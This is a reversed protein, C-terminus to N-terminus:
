ALLYRLIVLILNSVSVLGKRDLNDFFGLHFYKFTAWFSLYYIYNDQKRKKYQKNKNIRVCISTINILVLKYLKSLM